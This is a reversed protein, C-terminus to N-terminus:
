SLRLVSARRDAATPVGGGPKAYVEASPPLQAVRNLLPPEPAVHAGDDALTTVVPYWESGKAPMSRPWRNGSAGVM